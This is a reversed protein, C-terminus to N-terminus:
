VVYNSNTKRDRENVSSANRWDRRGDGQRQGPHSDKARKKRCKFKFHEIEGCQDSKRGRASCRRDRAFHDERGCNLCDRKENSTGGVVDVVSSVKESSIDGGSAGDDVVTNMQGSSNNAGMAEM